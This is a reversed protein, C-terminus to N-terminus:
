YAMFKQLGKKRDMCLWSICGKLPLLNLALFCTFKESTRM